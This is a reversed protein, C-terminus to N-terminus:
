VRGARLSRVNTAVVQFPLTWLDEPSIRYLSEPRFLPHGSEQFAYAILESCFWRDTEQWNRRFGVGLAGFVDYPKGLQTRAAALLADPDPHLFEM